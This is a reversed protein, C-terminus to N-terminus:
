LIVGTQYMCRSVLQFTFLFVLKITCKTYPYFSMESTKLKFSVIQTVKNGCGRTISVYINCFSPCCINTVFRSFFPSTQVTFSYFFNYITEQYPLFCLKKRSTSSQIPKKFCFSIVDCKKLIKGFNLVSLTVQFILM